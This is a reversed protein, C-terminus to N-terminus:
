TTRLELTEPHIYPSSLQPFKQILLLSLRLTEDLSDTEFEVSSFKSYFDRSAKQSSEDLIEVIQEDLSMTELNVQRLRKMSERSISINQEISYDYYVIMEKNILDRLELNIQTFNSINEYQEILNLVSTYRLIDISSAWHYSISSLKKKFEDRSIDSSLSNNFEIFNILTDDFSQKLIEVTNLHKLSEDVKLDKLTNIDLLVYHIKIHEDTIQFTITHGLNDLNFYIDELNFTSDSCILNLDCNYLYKISLSPYNIIIPNLLHKLNTENEYKIFNSRIVYEYDIFKPQYILSNQTILNSISYSRDIQIAQLSYSTQFQPNSSSYFNLFSDVLYNDTLLAVEDLFDRSLNSVVEDLFDQSPNFVIEDTHVNFIMVASIAVLILLIIVAATSVKNSRKEKYNKLLKDVEDGNHGAKILNQKINNKSEGREIQNKIWSNLEDNM